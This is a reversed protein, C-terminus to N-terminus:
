FKMIKEILSNTATTAALITYYAIVIYEVNKAMEYAGISLSKANSPTIHGIDNSQIREVILALIEACADVDAKIQKVQLSKIRNSILSFEKIAAEIDSTRQFAQGIPTTVAYSGSKVFVNLMKARAEREKAMQKYQNTYDKTSLRADGSSLLSALYTRYEKVQSAISQIYDVQTSLTKAFLLYDGTFGEPTAFTLKQFYQFEINPLKAIAKAEDKSLPLADVKTIEDFQQIEPLLKTLFGPLVGKLLKVTNDIFGAELTIRDIYHELTHVQTPQITISTAM